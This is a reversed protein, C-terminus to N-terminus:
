HAALALAKLADSDAAALWARAIRALLDDLSSAREIAQQVLASGLSESAKCLGALVVSRGDALGLVRRISNGPLDAQPREVMESASHADLRLDAVGCRVTTPLLSGHRLDDRTTLICTFSDPLAPLLHICLLDLTPHLHNLFHSHELVLATSVPMSVALDGALEIFLRPWGSTPGLQHRMHELTAAGVGPCIRRAAGILWILFTAPDGDEPGLRLWLIPRGSEALTAALSDILLYGAPANFWTITSVAARDLVPHRFKTEATIPAALKAAFPLSIAEHARSIPQEHADISQDLPR